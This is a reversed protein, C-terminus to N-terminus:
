WLGIWKADTERSDVHGGFERVSYKWSTFKKEDNEDNPGKHRQPVALPVAQSHPTGYVNFPLQQQTSKDTTPQPVGLLSTM